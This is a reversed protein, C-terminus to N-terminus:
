LWFSGSPVRGEQILKDMKVYFTEVKAALDSKEDILNEVDKKSIIINKNKNELERM